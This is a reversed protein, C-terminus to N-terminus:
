PHPLKLKAFAGLLLARLPESPWQVGQVDAGEASDSELPELPLVGKELCTSWALLGRAHEALTYTRRGGEGRGDGLRRAERLDALCLLKPLLETPVTSLDDGKREGSASWEEARPDAIAFLRGPGAGGTERRGRRQWGRRTGQPKRQRAARRQGARVVVKAAAAKM